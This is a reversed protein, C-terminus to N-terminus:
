GTPVMGGIPEIVGADNDKSAESPGLVFLMEVINPDEISGSIAPRGYTSSSSSSSSSSSCCMIGILIAAM